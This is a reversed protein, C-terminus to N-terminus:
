GRPLLSPRRRRGVAPLVWRRVLWQQLANHMAAYCAGAVLAKYLRDPLRKPYIVVERSRPDIEIRPVFERVLKRREEVGDGASALLASRRYADVDSADITPLARDGSSRDLREAWEQREAQLKTLRENALDTAVLGQEIADM